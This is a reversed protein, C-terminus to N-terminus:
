TYIATTVSEDLMLSFTISYIRSCFSVETGVPYRSLSQPSLIM